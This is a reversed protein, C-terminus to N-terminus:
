DLARAAARGAETLRYYVRRRAGRAGRKLEIREVSRELWGCSEMAYLTNYITHKLIGTEAVAEMGCMKPRALFARLLRAVGVTTRLKKM